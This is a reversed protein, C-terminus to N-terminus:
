SSARRMVPAEQGLVGLGAAGPTPHRERHESGDPFTTTWAAGGRSASTGSRSGRAAAMPRARPSQSRPWPRRGRASATPPARRCALGRAIEHENSRRRRPPRPHPDHPALDQRPRWMRPRPTGAVHLEADVPRGAGASGGAAPLGLTEFRAVKDAVHPVASRAAGAAKGASTASRVTSVRPTRARAPSTRAEHGKEGGHV